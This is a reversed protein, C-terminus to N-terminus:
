VCEPRACAPWYRGAWSGTRTMKRFCGYSRFQTVLQRNTARALTSTQDTGWHPGLRAMCFHTQANAILRGWQRSTHATAVTFLAVGGVAGDALFKRRSLM